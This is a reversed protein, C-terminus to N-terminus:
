LALLIKVLGEKYDKRFCYSISSKVSFVAKLTNSIAAPKAVGKRIGEAQWYIAESAPDMSLVRNRFAKRIASGVKANIPIAKGGGRWNRKEKLFFAKAEQLSIKKVPASKNAIILIDNPSEARAPVSFAIVLAALLGASIARRNKKM